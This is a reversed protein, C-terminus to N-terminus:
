KGKLHAAYRGKEMLGGGVSLKQAPEVLPKDMILPPQWAEEIAALADQDYHANAPDFHATFKDNRDFFSDIMGRKENYEEEIAALSEAFIELRDPTGEMMDKTAQVASYGARISNLTRTEVNIRMDLKRSEADCYDKYARLKDYLRKIVKLLDQYKEAEEGLLTVANRQVQVEMARRDAQAQNLLEQAKAQEKRARDLSEQVIRVQGSIKDIHDKLDELRELFYKRHGKLNGLPDVMALKRMFAMYFYSFQIWLRKDLLITLVIGVAVLGGIALLTSKMAAAVFLMFPIYLKSIGWGLLGLIGLGVVGGIKGERKSWFSKGEAVNM